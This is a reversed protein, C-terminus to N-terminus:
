KYVISKASKSSSATPATALSISHSLSVTLPTATTTLGYVPTLPSSTIFPITTTPCLIAPPPLALPSSMPTATTPALIPPPLPPPSDTTMPTPAISYFSCSPAAIAHTTAPAQDQAAELLSLFASSSKSQCLATASDTHMPENQFFRNEDRCDVEDKVEEDTIYGDFESGSDEGSSFEDMLQFLTEPDSTLLKRSSERNSVARKM